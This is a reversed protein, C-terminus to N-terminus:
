TNYLAYTRQHTPPAHSEDCKTKIALTAAEEQSLLGNEVKNLLYSVWKAETVKWGKDMKNPLNSALALHFGKLHHTLMKIMMSLHVLFGWAIELEKYDLKVSALKQVDVIADVQDIKDWL